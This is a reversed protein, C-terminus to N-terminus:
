YFKSRYDKVDAAERLASAFNGGGRMKFQEYMMKRQEAVNASPNPISSVNDVRIVFAGSNGPIIKNVVKGKNAVNFSAGIVKNEGMLAPSGYSMRLSDAVEIPANLMKASAAELTTIAGVNKEIIAAKKINRLVPEVMMRAKDATQTGKEFVETVTAVVYNDGVREPSLVDGLKAKYIQKVFERSEGIGMIQYGTPEIDTAFQKSIGKEKFLKDTNDVFRKQTTSNGSFQTAANTAAADTERSADITVPVYAVKYGTNSGKSSLIEIYHYGFQTKVVGKAGVPNGFIFDNFEHVMRGSAVNEYVGNTAASGQDDTLKVLSDFSKGKAIEQRISDMRKEATATDRVQYPQGTQQDMQSTAVLIHRITVSDPQARTGLVKAITYSNGDVYPGYTSGAPTAFIGEKAPVQIDKQGIYGDYFNQVGQLALFNNIDKTSDLEAKLALSKNYSVTSDDKSPAASFLVYAISRSEKQKFGNAHKKVYARIEDDTVKVSSDSITSYAQKVYSIKSILSNDANQKEVMWKPFNVTNSLLSGLKNNLRVLEMQDFYYAFEQKQEPTGKKLIENVQRKALTGSFQGTQPDVFSQKFDDPAEEGYLLDGLEKKGVTLGLENFEKNLVVKDVEQNWTMAMAQQRLESASGRFGQAQMRQEQKEIETEFARVDVAKGNIKGLTTSQNNFLSGGNEFALMVVFTILALAIVVAMLKSYKDQIQQIISM